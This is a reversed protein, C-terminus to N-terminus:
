RSAPSAPSCTSWPRAGRASSREREIVTVDALIESVRTQQRTATVVVPELAEQAGVEFPFSSLLLSPPLAAALSKVFRNVHNGEAPVGGARISLGGCALV